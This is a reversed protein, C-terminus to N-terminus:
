AYNPLAILCYHAIESDEENLFFVILLAAQDIFHNCTQGSYVARVLASFFYLLITVAFAVPAIRFIFSLIYVLPISSWCFFFQLFVVVMKVSSTLM